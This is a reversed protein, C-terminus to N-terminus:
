PSSVRYNPREDEDLRAFRRVVHAVINDPSGAVGGERSRTDLSFEMTVFAPPASLLENGFDIENGSLDRAGAAGGVLHLFYDRLDEEELEDPSKRYYRSLQYVVSVYAERTRPSFGRLKMDQIMRTKLYGM